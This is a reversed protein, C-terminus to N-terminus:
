APEHLSSPPSTQATVFHPPADHTQDYPCLRPRRRDPPRRRRPARPGRRPAPRRGPPPHVSRVLLTTAYVTALTGVTRARHSDPISVLALTNAAIWSVTFPFGALLVTALAVGASPFCALAALLLGAMTAGIAIPARYGCRRVM